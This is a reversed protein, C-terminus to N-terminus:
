LVALVREGEFVTKWQLLEYYENDFYDENMLNDSSALGQAKQREQRAYQMEQAHSKPNKVKEWDFFNGNMKMEWKTMQLKEGLFRMGTIGSEDPDIDVGKPDYLFTMPDVVRPQSLMKKRNFNSLDVVGYGFMLADWTQYYDVLPKNMAGYDYESAISLSNATPIDGKENPKWTVSIRDDYLSALLTSHGIFMIPDGVKDDERKQNNYLSLNRGFKVFKPQLFDYCYKYEAQIQRLLRKKRDEGLRDYEERSNKVVDAEKLKVEPMKDQQEQMMNMNMNFTNVEM